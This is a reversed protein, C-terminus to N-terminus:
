SLSSKFNDKEVLSFLSLRLPELFPMNDSTRLMWRKRVKTVSRGGSVAWWSYDLLRSELILKITSYKYLHVLM